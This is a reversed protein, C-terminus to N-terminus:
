RKMPNGIPPAKKLPMMEIELNENKPSSKNILPAVTEVMNRADDSLKVM